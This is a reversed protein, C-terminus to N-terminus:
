SLELRRGRMAIGRPRERQRLWTGDGIRFRRRGVAGFSTVFLALVSTAAEGISGFALGIIWLLVSAALLLALPLTLNCNDGGIRSQLAGCAASASTAAVALVTFTYATGNPHRDTDACSEDM